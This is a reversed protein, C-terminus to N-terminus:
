KQGGRGSVAWRLIKEGVGFEIPGLKKSPKIAEPSNRIAMTLAVVIMDVVGATAL